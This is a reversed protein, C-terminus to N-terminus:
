KETFSLTADDTEFLRIAMLTFPVRYVQLRSGVLVIKLSGLTTRTIDIDALREDGARDGCVNISFTL